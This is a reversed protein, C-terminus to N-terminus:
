RVCSRDIQTTVPVKPFGLAIAAYYRHYGNRVRYLYSGSDQQVVEVPPVMGDPSQMGLLIPVLRHMQFGPIGADRLPPEVKGIPVVDTYPDLERPYVYFDIKRQFAGCQCFSLWSDPIHFSLTSNPVTFDM